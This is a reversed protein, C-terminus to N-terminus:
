RRIGVGMGRVGDLEDGIAPYADAVPRWRASSVAASSANARSM